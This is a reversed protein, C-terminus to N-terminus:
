CPRQLMWSQSPKRHANTFQVNDRRPKPWRSSFIWLMLSYSKLVVSSEWSAWVVTRVNSKELVNRNSKALQPFAAIQQNLVISYIHLYYMGLELFRREWWFFSEPDFHIQNPFNNGQLNQKSLPKILNIKIIKLNCTHRHTPKHVRTCAGIFALVTPNWANHAVGRPHQSCFMPARLWGLWREWRQLKVSSFSLFPISVEIKHVQPILSLDDAM